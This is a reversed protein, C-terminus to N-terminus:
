AEPEHTPLSKDAFRSSKRFYASLGIKYHISTGADKSQPHLKMAQPEQYKMKAMQEQEAPIASQIRNISTTNLPYWLPM